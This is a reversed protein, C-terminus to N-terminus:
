TSKASTNKIIEAASTTHQTISNLNDSVNQTIRDNEMVTHKIDQSYRNIQNAKQAIDNVTNAIEHTAHNQQDISMSISNNFVQVQNIVEDIQVVDKFSIETANLMKKIQLEIKETAEATQKALEKVENAVVSFGKGAEGASAAEITANLALLNTQRAIENIISVIDSVENAITNLEKMAVVTNKTKTSADSSIRYAQQTNQNVESLSATMEEIASAASNIREVIDAINHSIQDINGSVQNMSLTVNSFSDNVQDVNRAISSIGQAAQSSEIALSQIESANYQSEDSIQSIQENVSQIERSASSSDATMEMSDSLMKQSLDNLALLNNDLQQNVSYIKKIIEHIKDLFINMWSGLEGIEDSTEVKLRKTLDGEGQAIDKVMNLINYIPNLIYRRSFARVFWLSFVLVLVFFILQMIINRFARNRQSDLNNQLINVIQENLRVAISNIQNKIAFAQQSKQQIEESNVGQAINVFADSSIEFFDDYLTQLSDLATIFESKESSTEKMKVILEKITKGQENASNVADIDGLLLADEYSKVQQNFATNLENSYVTLPFYEKRVRLINSTLLYNSFFTFLTALFYAALIMLAIMRIKYSVSTLKKM